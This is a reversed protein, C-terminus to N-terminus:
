RGERHGKDKWYFYILRWFLYVEFQLQQSLALFFFGGFVFFGYSVIDTFGVSYVGSPQYRLVNKWGRNATDIYIPIHKEGVCM